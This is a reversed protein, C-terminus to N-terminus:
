QQLSGNNLGTFYALVDNWHEKLYEDSELFLHPVAEQSAVACKFAIEKAKTINQTGDTILFIQSKVWNREAKLKVGTKYGLAIISKM